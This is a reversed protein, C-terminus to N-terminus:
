KIHDPSNYNAFCREVDNRVSLHKADVCELIHMMSIKKLQHQRLLQNIKQLGKATYIGCLPQLKEEAVYVYAEDTGDRYHALLDHLLLEDMDIMDCALVFLDQEPFRYHVSLLGLLPGKMLSQEDVILNGHKFYESYTQLQEKNVSVFVTLELASLKSAAIEAWTLNNRKLLGKDSGM